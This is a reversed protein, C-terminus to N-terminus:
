TRGTPRATPTDSSSRTRAAAAAASSASPPRRPRGGDGFVSAQVGGDEFTFVTEVGLGGRWRGPGASDQLYEFRQLFHPNVLEFIEPDQAAIAGGSTILGIHDYGDAGYTGGGGGKCANILIDVYPANARDVLGRRDDGAPPELM